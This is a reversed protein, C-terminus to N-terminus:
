SDEDLREVGGAVRGGMRAVDDHEVTISMSGEGSSGEEDAGGASRVKEAVVQSMLEGDELESRKLTESLEGFVGTHKRSVAFARETRCRTGPSICRRNPDLFCLVREILEGIALSEGLILQLAQHGIRAIVPVQTRDISSERGLGDDLRNRLYGRIRQGYVNLVSTGDQVTPTATCKCCSVDGSADTDLDSVGEGRPGAPQEVEVSRDGEHKIGDLVGLVGLVGLVCRSFEAPYAEFM